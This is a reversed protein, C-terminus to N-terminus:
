EDVLKDIKDSDLDSEQEVTPPLLTSNYKNKSINM